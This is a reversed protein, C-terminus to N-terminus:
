KLSDYFRGKLLIDFASDDYRRGLPFTEFQLGDYIVDCLTLQEPPALGFTINKGDLAESVDSLKSNGHGVSSIAAVIRRIMNWLFHDARFELEIISNHENVDVRRLDVVTSREDEKCFRAFDHEGQFLAACERVSDMEMGDSRMTYVYVRESAHRPNFEEDVDAISRYFVSDSVANLARLLEENDQFATNFAAVNGLANVGRDTRGAMRLNPEIDSIRSIHQIMDGEVTREGPQIQSGRFGEGLYAIKVAVRRM